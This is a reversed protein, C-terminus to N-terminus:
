LICKVQIRAPVRPFFGYLSTAEEEFSKDESFTKFIVIHNEKAFFDVEFGIGVFRWIRIEIGVSLWNLELRRKFDIHRILYATEEDVYFLGEKPEISGSHINVNLLTSTVSLRDNSLYMKLPSLVVSEGKLTGVGLRDRTDIDTKFMELRLELWLTLSLTSLGYNPSYRVGVSFINRLHQEIVFKAKNAQFSKEDAYKSGLYSIGYGFSYCPIEVKDDAFTNSYYMSSIVLLIVLVFRFMSKVKSHLLYHRGTYTDARALFFGGRLDISRGWLLSARQSDKNHKLLLSVKRQQNIKATTAM